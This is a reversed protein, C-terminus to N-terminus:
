RHVGLRDTRGADSRNGPNARQRHLITRNSTCGNAIPYADMCGAIERIAPQRVALRRHVILETKLPAQSEMPANDFGNGTGGMFSKTGQGKRMRRYERPGYRSGKDSHRVFVTLPHERRRQETM